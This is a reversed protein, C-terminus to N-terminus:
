QRATGVPQDTQFYKKYAGIWDSSIEQQATALDIRGECVLQHLRNELADKVHANWVTESYSQPWLNRIDDSGGLEPTILYDVEYARPEVDPIGYEEFVQRQVTVPIFHDRVSSAAGCVDRESVRITSGPTLRAQPVSVTAFAAEAARDKRPRAEYRSIVVTAVLVLAASAYAFRRSQFLTGLSPLWPRPAPAAAIQALQAKLFARSGAAQGVLPDLDGRHLHVFEAIANEIESLRARCTWCAALHSRIQTPRLLSLEGDAVQLLEEDSLHPDKHMM